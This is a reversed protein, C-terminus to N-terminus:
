IGRKEKTGDSKGRGVSSISQCPNRSRGGSQHCCVSAVCVPDIVRMFRDKGVAAADSTTYPAGEARGSRLMWVPGQGLGSGPHDTVVKSRHLRLPETTHIVTEGTQKAAACGSFSASVMLTCINSCRFILLSRQGSWVHVHLSESPCLCVCVGDHGCDAKNLTM